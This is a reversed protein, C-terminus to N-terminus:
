RDPSRSSGAAEVPGVWYVEREPDWKELRALSGSKLPNPVPCRVEVRLGAADEDVDAYGFSEDVRGSSITCSKGVFSVREPAAVLRFIPRLPKIAVSTIVMGAAFALVLVVIGTTSEPARRVLEPLHLRSVLRMGFLSCLLGFFALLTLSITMPVEGLGLLRPGELVTAREVGAEAAGTAGEAAGTLGEVADAAGDLAGIDVFGTLAIAWYLCALALVVTFIVTPFAVLESLFGLV